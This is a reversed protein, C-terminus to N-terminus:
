NIQQSSPMSGPPLGLLTGKVRKAYMANGLFAMDRLKIIDKKEYGTIDHIEPNFPIIGSTM